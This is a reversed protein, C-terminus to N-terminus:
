LMQKLVKYDRKIAAIHQPVLEPDRHDLYEEHLSIPGSFDTEALMKFFQPNILGEGLPVNSAKRGNWVFDKVYVTDIHDRIMRFTTPWSTGGEVTAHRIDYAMGIDAPDIGDLVRDLDWIAAGMYRSGAHNQYVGTIGFDHNIAALDVLQDHWNAIQDAVPTGADYRFYGMRYRKIGLTAATRLVRETIPDSPDNINSTMVTISLGHQALAEVLKPLEDVVNEPDIHGGPRIPAEIGDFGIAAMEEALRDFSLSNFPKTFVCIPNNPDGDAARSATPILSTAATAAAAALFQRRHTTM